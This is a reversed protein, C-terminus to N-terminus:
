HAAVRYRWVDDMRGGVRTQGAGCYTSPYIISLIVKPPCHMAPAVWSCALPHPLRIMMPRCMGQRAIDRRTPENAAANRAENLTRWSCSLM